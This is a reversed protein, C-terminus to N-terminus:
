RSFNLLFSIPKVETNETMDVYREALYLIMALHGNHPPNFSGAFVVTQTKEKLRQHRPIAKDPEPWPYLIITPCVIPYVLVAAIYIIVVSIVVVFSSLPWYSTIKSLISFAEDM